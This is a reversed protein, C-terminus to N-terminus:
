PMKKNMFHRCLEDNVKDEFMNYANEIALKYRAKCSLRLQQVTGYTIGFISDSKLKDLHENWYPQLPHIPIRCVAYYSARQLAAVIDNYYTDIIACHSHNNGCMNDDRDCLVLPDPLSLNRLENYTCDYYM